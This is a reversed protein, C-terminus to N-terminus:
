TGRRKRYTQLTRREQREMSARQERRASLTSVREERPYRSPGLGDLAQLVVRAEDWCTYTNRQDHAGMSCYGRGHFMHLARGIVQVREDMPTARRERSGAMRDDDRKRRSQEAIILDSQHNQNARMIVYLSHAFLRTQELTDVLAMAVPDDEFRYGLFEKNAPTLLEIPLIVGEEPCGRKQKHPGKDGCTCTVDDPLWDTWTSM